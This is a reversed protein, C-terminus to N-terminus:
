TADTSKRNQRARELAVIFKHLPGSGLGMMVGTITYELWQPLNVEFLGLSVADPSKTFQAILSFVNIGLCFAVSIGLIAGVSKCIGKVTFARINNASIVPAGEYGPHDINVYQSALYEFVTQQLKNGKAKEMRNQLRERINIARRNWFDSFDYKAEIYDFICKAIELIREIILSFFLAATLLILAANTEEM